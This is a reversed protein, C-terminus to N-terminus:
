RASRRRWGFMTLLAAIALAGLTVLRGANYRPDQFSFTVTRAGTPLPVGVLNYAARMVPLPKGDAMARWGPYYNESIVLASGEIAPADLRITARGPGFDSVTTTITSPESMLAPAVHVLRGNVETAPAVSVFARSNYDERLVERAAAGDDRTGFSAAVWAYSNDGPIDYLYGISGASNPTPGNIRHLASDVINVNTYMWRVNEHQWFARNILAGNASLEDYRAIENGHYGTVTRVGHTMFGGGGGLGRSGFYPDSSVRQDASKTYVLVRGPQTQAQLYRVIPDSAFLVAAPQSFRWYSHAVSWLDTGSTVFLLMAFRAAGLKRTHLAWMLVAVSLVVALSRLSGLALASQNSAAFEAFGKPDHGAAKAVGYSLQQAIRTLAGSQALVAITSAFVIWGTIYHLLFRPHCTRALVREFGLASLVSLAFTMVYMISSPDRFFRTGPIIAYVLHYFPTFGGLAWLLAVMATGLWFRALVKRAGTGFALPVLMLVVIGLYESHLHTGNRGWYHNLMGSFQPLYTNILEEPPLSYSAAFDYDRGNARPSLNLYGLVPWYQIAGIGLGLLVMALAAGLRTVAFRVRAFAPAIKLGEAGEREGVRGGTGQVRFGSSEFVSNKFESNGLESSGFESHQSEDRVGGYAAAGGWVLFLAFAGCMLLAYQLLQPHPSLVALGITFAFAGWAYLRGDRVARILMWLALPLLASVFLKVDHGPSAYSAIPGSMMYSLGGFTAVWRSLGLARLFGLTFVGALFLHIIFGWTIALDTPMILRLLFTPYFID